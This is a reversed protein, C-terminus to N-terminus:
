PKSSSHKAALVAAATWTQYPQPPQCIRNSRGDSQEVDIVVEAVLTGQDTGAFFEPFLGVTACASVLRARLRDAEAAYGSAALGQAIIYTDFPWVNGNHYGTPRFRPSAPHLTRVGTETLMGDVLLSRAVLDRHGTAADPGDWLHSLLTWGPNSTRVQLPRLAGDPDRDVGLAVFDGLGDSVLFNDVVVATLAGALDVLENASRSLGGQGMGGRLLEAGALLARHAIAQVEISAVTDVRALEGDSHHYADFSDKWVQNEISGEFARRSVLLPVPEAELRTVLWQLAAVAANGITSGTGTVQRDVIGSGLRRTLARVAMLFLPTADISGYYPWDWGATQTIRRAVPDHEPDRIEHAVRGPEEERRVAVSDGQQRALVDVASLLLQPYWPCLILGSILSDRGFVANFLSLAPEDAYDDRVLAAVPPRQPASLSTGGTAEILVRFASWPAVPDPRRVTTCRLVKEGPRVAVFPPM